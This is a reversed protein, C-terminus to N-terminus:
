NLRRIQFTIVVVLSLLVIQLQSFWNPNTFGYLVESSLIVLNWYIIEKGGEQIAGYLLKFLKLYISIYISLYFVLGFLGLQVAIDLFDSHSMMGSGRKIYQYLGTGFIPYETFQQWTSRYLDVRSENELATNVTEYRTIREYLYYEELNHTLNSWSFFLIVFIGPLFLLIVKKIGNRILMFAILVLAANVFGGRSATLLITYMSFVVISWLLVKVNRKSTDLILLFSILMSVRAYNAVGNANAQLGSLRRTLEYNLGEPNYLHSVIVSIFVSWLMVKMLRNWDERNKIVLFPLVFLFSNSLLTRFYRWYGLTYDVQLYGILAIPVLLLFFIYEKPILKLRNWRNVLVVATM